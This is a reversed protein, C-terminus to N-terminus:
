GLRQLVHKLADEPQREKVDFPLNRPFRYGRPGSILRGQFAEHHGTLKKTLREQTHRAAKPELKVRIGLSHGKNATAGSAEIESMMRSVPRIGRTVHHIQQFFHQVQCLWSDRSAASRERYEMSNVECFRRLRQAKSAWFCRSNSELRLPDTTRQPNQRQGPTHPNSEPRATLTATNHQKTLVPVCCVSMGDCCMLVFGIEIVLLVFM